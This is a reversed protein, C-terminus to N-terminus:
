EEFSPQALDGGTEALQAVIQRDGVLLQRDEVVDGVVGPQARQHRLRGEGTLVLALGLSVSIGHAAVATLQLVLDGFELAGLVFQEVPHEPLPTAGVVTTM